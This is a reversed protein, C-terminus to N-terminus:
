RAAVAEQSKPSRRRLERDLLIAATDAPHRKQREALRVLAEIQPRDLRVYIRRMPPVELVM